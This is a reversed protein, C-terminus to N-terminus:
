FLIVARLTLISVIFYLSGVLVLKHSTRIAEPDIRRVEDGIYPKSVVKGFYRAPGGLRVGLAGAFAAETHGANPSSHNLRDRMIIKFSRKYELNLTFAALVVMAASMRSPIFNVADDLRAAIKGFKIYEANKYGIMSDMTNIAKYLFAGIVSCGIATMDIYPALFSFAVAYFFPATIGDVMNEAVTEVCARSIESSDLSNTDRGVIHGVAKRASDLDSSQTLKRLVVGSQHILDRAAITTYLLVVAALNGVFTSIRYSVTLILYISCGTITLVFIVNIFGALSSNKICKRAMKEGATCAM